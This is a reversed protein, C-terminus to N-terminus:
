NSLGKHNRERQAALRVNATGIMFVVVSTIIHFWERGTLPPGSAFLRTKVFYLLYVATIIVMAWGVTKQRDFLM